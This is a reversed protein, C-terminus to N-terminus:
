CFNKIKEQVHNKFVKTSNRSESLQSILGPADQGDQRWEEGYLHEKWTLDSSIILGLLKESPTEVVTKEDVLIEMNDKVRSRRLEKTCIVLLKSKEGAM